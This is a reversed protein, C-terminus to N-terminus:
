TKVIPYEQLIEDLTNILAKIQTQEFQVVFTLETQEFGPNHIASCDCKFHGLGNGQVKITLYPELSDFHAFGNLDKNLASLREKFNEFDGTEIEGIYEGEFKGAKITIKTSILNRSYDTESNPFAYKLPEIALINEGYKIEFTMSFQIKFKSSVNGRNVSTHPSTPVSKPKFLSRFLNQINWTSSMFGACM